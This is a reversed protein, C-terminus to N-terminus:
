QSNELKKLQFIIEFEKRKEKSKNLSKKKYVIKM